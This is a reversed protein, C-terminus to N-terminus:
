IMRANFFLQVLETRRQTYTLAYRLKKLLACM